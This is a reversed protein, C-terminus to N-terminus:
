RRHWQPQQQNDIEVVKEITDPLDNIRERIFTPYIPENVVQDLPVWRFVFEMEQEQVIFFESLNLNSDDCNLLYYFGLEHFKLNDYEFFAENIFLLRNITVSIQLEEEMERIITSETHELMEARGGPLAYFDDKSSRHVLLRGNKILVGVVRFNFKESGQKFALM